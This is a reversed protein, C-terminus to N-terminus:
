TVLAVDALSLAEARDSRLGMLATAHQAVARPGPM